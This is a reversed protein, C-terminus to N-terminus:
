ENEKAKANSCIHKEEQNCICLKWVNVNKPYM